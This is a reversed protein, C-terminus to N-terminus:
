LLLTEFQDATKRQDQLLMYTYGDGIATCPKFSPHDHCYSCFGRNGYENYGLSWVSNDNKVYCANWRAADVMKVGSDVKIPTM